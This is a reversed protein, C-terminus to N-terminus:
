LKSVTLAQISSQGLKRHECVCNKAQEWEVPAKDRIFLPAQRDIPSSKAHAARRTGCSSLWRHGGPGELGHSGDEIAFHRM